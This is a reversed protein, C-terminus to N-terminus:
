NIALRDKLAHAYLKKNLKKKNISIIKKLSEFLYKNILYIM